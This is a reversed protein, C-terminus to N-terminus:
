LTVTLTERGQSLSPSGWDGSVGVPAACISDVHGRGGWSSPLTFSLVPLGQCVTVVHTVARHSAQRSAQCHAQQILLPLRACLLSASFLPCFPPSLGQRPVLSLQASHPWPTVAALGGRDCLLAFPLHLDAARALALRQHLELRVGHGDQLAQGLFIDKPTIGPSTLTCSLHPCPVCLPPLSLYIPTPFIQPEKLPIFGKAWCVTQSM